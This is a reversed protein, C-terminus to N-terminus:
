ARAGARCMRNHATQGSYSAGSLRKLVLARIRGLGVDSERVTGDNAVVTKNHALNFKRISRLPKLLSQRPM